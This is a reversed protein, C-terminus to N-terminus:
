TNNREIPTERFGSSRSVTDDGERLGQGGRSERDRETSREEVGTGWPCVDRLVAHVVVRGVVDAHESLPSEDITTYLHIVSLIVGFRDALQTDFGTDKRRSYSGSVTFRHM